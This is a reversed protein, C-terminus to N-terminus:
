LFIGAGNYIHESPKCREWDRQCTQQKCVLESVTEDGMIVDVTM